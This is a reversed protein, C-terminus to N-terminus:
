GPYSTSFVNSKHVDDSDDNGILVLFVNMKCYFPRQRLSTEKQAPHCFTKANLYIQTHLNGTGVTVWNEEM